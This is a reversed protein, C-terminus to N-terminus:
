PHFISFYSGARIYSLFLCVSTGNFVLIIEKFIRACVQTLDGSHDGSLDGSTVCDAEQPTLSAKESSTAKSSLSSSHTFKDHVCDLPATGPLAHTFAPRWGPAQYM